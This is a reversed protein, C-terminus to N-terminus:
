IGAAICGISVVVYVVLISIFGAIGGRTTKPKRLAMAVIFGIISLFFSLMFGKAFSGAEVGMGYEITKPNKEFYAKKPEIFELEEGCSHCNKEYNECKCGCKTCIIM